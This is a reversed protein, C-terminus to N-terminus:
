PFMSMIAAVEIDGKMLRGQRESAVRAARSLYDAGMNLRHSRHGKVWQIRINKNKSIELVELALQKIRKNSLAKLTSTSRVRGTLVEQAFEVSRQSDCYVHITSYASNANDIVAHLIGEFEAAVISRQETVGFNYSKKDPESSFWAWGCLNNDVSKSADSCIFLTSSSKVRPQHSVSREMVKRFLRALDTDNIPILKIMPFTITLDYFTTRHFATSCISVSKDHLDHTDRIHTIIAVSQELLNGYATVFYRTSAFVYSWKYGEREKNLFVITDSM